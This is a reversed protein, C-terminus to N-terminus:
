SDKIWKLRNYRNVQNQKQYLTHRNIWLIHKLKPMNRHDGWILNCSRKKKAKRNTLHVHKYWPYKKLICSTSKIQYKGCKSIIENNYIGPLWISMLCGKCSIRRLKETNELDYQGNGLARKCPWNKEFISYILVWWLNLSVIYVENPNNLMVRLM